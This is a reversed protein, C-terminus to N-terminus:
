RREREPVAGHAELRARCLATYRAGSPTLESRFLVVERAAFGGFDAAAHPAVVPEMGGRARRPDKIRGLTLHPRFPRSERGFGLDALRGEIAEVLKALAGAPDEIGAWVVRPRELSPFAGVGACRLEIPGHAAALAQLADAVADASPAPIEGLFKLTLHMADLSVWRVAPGGAKEWSSRLEDRTKQVRRLTEVPVELALFTRIFDSM